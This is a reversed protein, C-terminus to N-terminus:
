NEFPEIGPIIIHCAFPIESREFYLVCVDNLNDNMQYAVVPKRM